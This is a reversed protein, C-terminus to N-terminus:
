GDFRLTERSDLGSEASQGDYHGKGSEKLIEGFFFPRFEPHKGGVQLLPNAIKLFLLEGFGPFEEDSHSQIDRSRDLPPVLQDFPDEFLLASEFDM